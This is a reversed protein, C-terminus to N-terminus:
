VLIGERRINVMLPSSRNQFDDESVFMDMIVADHRLSVASALESVRESEEHRDVPGHLVILIDIDSDPQADGRARSGFLVVRSLRSGYIAELGVRYEQLIQQLNVAM